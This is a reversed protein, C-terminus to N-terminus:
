SIIHKNKIIRAIYPSFITLCIGITLLHGIAPVRHSTANRIRSFDAPVSGDIFGHFTHIVQPNLKALSVSVQHASDRFSPSRRQIVPSISLKSSNVGAITIIRHVDPFSSAVNLVLSAGASEGILTVHAGEAFASRIAEKALKLKDDYSGGSYWRLPVLRADIGWLRWIKLAWRRGSDYHDGLGPFYLVIHRRRPM